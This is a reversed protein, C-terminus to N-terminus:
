MLWRQDDTSTDTELDYKDDAQRRRPGRTRRAAPADGRRREFVLFGLSVLGALALCLFVPWFRLGLGGGLIAGLNVLLLFVAVAPMWRKM